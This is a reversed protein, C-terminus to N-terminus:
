PPPRGDHKLLRREKRVGGMEGRLYDAPPPHRTPNAPVAGSRGGPEAMRRGGNRVRSAEGNRPPIALHSVPRNWPRPTCPPRSPSRELSRCFLGRNVVVRDHTAGVGDRDKDPSFPIPGANGWNLRSFSPDIVAPSAAARRRRCTTERPWRM